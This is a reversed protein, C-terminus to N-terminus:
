IPSRRSGAPHATCASGKSDRGVCRYATATVSVLRFTSDSRIFYRVGDTGGVSVGDTGGVCGGHQGGRRFHVVGNHVERESNEQDTEDHEFSPSDEAPGGRIHAQGRAEQPDNGGGAKKYGHNQIGNEGRDPDQQYAVSEVPEAPLPVDLARGCRRNIECWAVQDPEATGAPPAESGGVTCAYEWEAQTPLRFAVGTKETLWLCYAMADLWCVQIVPYGRLLGEGTASTETAPASGKEGMVREIATRMFPALPRDIGHYRKLYYGTDQCFRDFQEFTVEYKGIWFRGVTCNQPEIKKRPDAQTRFTGGQLCVMIPMPFGRDDRNDPPPNPGTPSSETTDVRAQCAAPFLLLLCLLTRRPTNSM